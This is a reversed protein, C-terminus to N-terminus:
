VCRMNTGVRVPKPM